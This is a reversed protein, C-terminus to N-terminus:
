HREHDAGRKARPKGHGGVAPQKVDDLVHGGQKSCGSRAARPSRRRGGGHREAPQGRDADHHPTVEVARQQRSWRRVSQRNHEAREDPFRGQQRWGRGRQRRRWGERRRGFRKRRRKRQENSVGNKLSTAGVCSADAFPAKAGRQPPVCAFNSDESQFLGFLCERSSWNWIPIALAAGAWLTLRSCMNPSRVGMSLARLNV